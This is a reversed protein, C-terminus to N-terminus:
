DLEKVAENKCRTQIHKVLNEAFNITEDYTHSLYLSSFISQEIGIEQSLAVRTGSSKASVTYRGSTKTLLPVPIGSQKYNILQYRLEGRERDPWRHYLADYNYFLGDYHYRVVQMGDTIALLRASDVMDSVQVVHSYDFLIDLVCDPTADVWFVLILSQSNDNQKLSEVKVGPYVQQTTVALLLLIYLLSSFFSSRM